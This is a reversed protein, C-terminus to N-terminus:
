RRTHRGNSVPPMKEPTTDEEDPDSAEHLTIRPPPPQNALEPQPSLQPSQPLPVRTPEVELAPIRDFSISIQDINKRQILDYLSPRSKLRPRLGVHM